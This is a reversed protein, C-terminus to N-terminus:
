KVMEEVAASAGKAWLLRAVEQLPVEIVPALAPPFIEDIALLSSVVCDPDDVRDCSALQAKIQAIMPDKVDIKAGQEDIATVYRMWGAIALLLCHYTRGSDLNDQLTSLLRQPLKQSGDMAIQWTKHQIAQNAYRRMLQEAYHVLSVGEPATLSPMIEAWLRRVYDAFIKDSVVQNITEHGALYGLYALASHSGNLMRLKMDEHAQVDQVMEVGVDEFQPRAKNVFQDEIVWQTFPEHMVPAHDVTGLRASLRASDEETTAPTIRDVMSSPFCATEKIWHALEADIKMALTLVLNKVLVGNQPVNDCSLITFPPKHQQYRMQLARVLYGIASVPYPENIDRIIDPHALDLMGTSPQHCYGKETITLTVIKVAEDAMARLVAQPSEPAFLVDNIINIEQIIEDDDSKSVAHYHWNQKGLKDRTAPSKLCVATIGWDGGSSHAAQQIYPAGHARFFAGLGLHVIGTKPQNATTM